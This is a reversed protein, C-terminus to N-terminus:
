RPLIRVLLLYRGTYDGAFSYQTTLDMKQVVKWRDVVEEPPSGAAVLPVEATDGCHGIIQSLVSMLVPEVHALTFARVDWVYKDQRSLRNFTEMLMVATELSRQLRGDYQFRYM